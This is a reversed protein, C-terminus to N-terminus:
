KVVRSDGMGCQYASELAKKIQWVSLDHFDLSDSKRIELTEVGLHEQAIEELLESVDKTIVKM